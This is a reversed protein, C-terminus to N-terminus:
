LRTSPLAPGLGATPALKVSVRGAPRPVSVLTVLATLAPAPVVLKVAVAVPRLPETVIGAPPTTVTVKWTLTAALTVPLMTLTAVTLTGAPAVSVVGPLLVPV